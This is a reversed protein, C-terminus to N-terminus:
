MPFVLGPSGVPIAAWKLKKLHSLDDSFLMQLLFPDGRSSITTVGERDATPSVVLCSVSSFASKAERWRWWWDENMLASSITCGGSWQSVSVSGRNSTVATLRLGCEGGWVTVSGWTARHAVKHLHISTLHSRDKQQPPQLFDSNQEPTACLTTAQTHSFSLSIQPSSTAPTKATTPKTEIYKIAKIKVWTNCHQFGDVTLLKQHCIVPGSELLGAVTSSM